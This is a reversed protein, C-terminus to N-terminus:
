AAWLHLSLVEFLGNDFLWRSKLPDPSLESSTNWVGTAAFCEM